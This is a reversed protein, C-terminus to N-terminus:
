ISERGHLKGQVRGEVLLDAAGVPVPLKQQTSPSACAWSPFYKPSQGVELIGGDFKGRAVLSQVFPGRIWVLLIRIGAVGGLLAGVVDQVSAEPSPAFVVNTVGVYAESGPSPSPIESQGLRM